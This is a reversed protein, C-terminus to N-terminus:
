IGHLNVIHLMKYAGVSDAFWEFKLKRFWKIKIRESWKLKTMLTTLIM